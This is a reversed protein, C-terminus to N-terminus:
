LDNTNAKINVGVSLNFDVTYYDFFKVTALEGEVTPTKLGARIIAHRADKMKEIDLNNYQILSTKKNSSIVEHTVPDVIAAAIIPQTGEAFLTDVPNYVSDMFTLQFDIDIPMGNTVELMINIQDIIDADEQWGESLLDELTDNLAFNDAKFELPLVFELNVDIKSDDNVFNYDVGEGDPNSIAGINYNISSPLFALFESVTSNDSNISFLTDKTEGYEALTPFAYRFTSASPPTFTLQISDGNEDFGTFRNINIEAPVGYSNSISLNIEPSAFEIEGELPNDFFGLDFEGQEGLLEYDGIYGFIADFDLGGFNADIDIQDSSSVGNIGNTYIEVHFEVPFFMTDNGVSDQLQISYGDLTFPVTAAYSGSEDSIDFTQSFMVGDLKLNPILLEVQAQHQFSSALDFILDGADLIMSDLKEGNDFTFPFMVKRDIEFTDVPPTVPIGFDSEIFYEFFNQSPIELLDEAVFSLLSDQYTLLLLGDPDTTFFSSSDFESVLDEMNLSGYAVPSLVGFVIEMEDDLKDFDFEDHMCQYFIPIILIPLILKIIGSFKLKNM